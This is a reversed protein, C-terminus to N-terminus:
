ILIDDNEQLENVFVEGRNKTQVKQNGYLTIQRGDELELTYEKLEKTYYKNGIDATFKILQQGTSTIAVANDPDFFRFGANGLVGYFSNLLIKTVLQLRDYYEAKDADGEKEFKKKLNKYDVREQFWKELITPIFGKENMTYVVGNAAISMNNTQLYSRLEESTAWGHEGM